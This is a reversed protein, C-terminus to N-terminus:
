VTKVCKEPSAIPGIIGRKGLKERDFELNFVATEGDAPFISTVKAKQGTELLAGNRNWIPTTAVVIQGVRLKV